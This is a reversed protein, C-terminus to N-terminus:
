PYLTVIANQFCAPEQLVNTAGEAFPLNGSGDPTGTWDLAKFYGTAGSDYFINTYITAAGGVSWADGTTPTTSVPFVLTDNAINTTGLTADGTLTLSPNLIGYSKFGNQTKWGTVARGFTQKLTIPKNFVFKRQNASNVVAIVHMHQFDIGRFLVDAFKKADREGISRYLLHPMHGKPTLDYAPGLCYIARQSRKGVIDLVSQDHYLGGSTLGEVTTGASSWAHQPIGFVTEVSQSTLKRAYTQVADYFAITNDVYNTGAPQSLVAGSVPQWAKVVPQMGLARAFDVHWAIQSLAEDLLSTGFQSTSLMFATKATDPTGKLSPFPIPPQSRTTTYDQPAAGQSANISGFWVDPCDPDNLLGRWMGFETGEGSNNPNYGQALSGNPDVGVLMPGIRDPVDRRFSAFVRGDLGDATAKNAELAHASNVPTVVGSWTGGILYPWASVNNDADGRSEISKVIMWYEKPIRLPPKGGYEALANHVAKFEDFAAFNEVACYSRVAHTLGLIPTVPNGSRAAGNLYATTFTTCNDTGIYTSGAFHGDILIWMTHRWFLIAVLHKGTLATTMANTRCSYSVAGGNYFAVELQGFRNGYLKLFQTAPNAGVLAFIPFATITTSYNGDTPNGGWSRRWFGRVISTDDQLADIAVPVDPSFATLPGGTVIAMDCQAASAGATVLAAHNAVSVVTQTTFDVDFLLASNQTNSLLGNAVNFGSEGFFGVRDGLYVPRSNSGSYLTADLVATLGASSSDVWTAMNSGSAFTKAGDACFLAKLSGSGKAETVHRLLTASAPATLDVPGLSSGIRIWGAPSAQYTFQGTNPIGTAGNADTHTGTDPGVAFGTSGAGGSPTIAALHAWTDTSTYGPAGTPGTAGTTGTDGTVIGFSLSQAPSTGVITATPAGGAAIKTVAGITLVNAPGPDGKAVAILATLKKWVWLSRVAARRNITNITDLNYAGQNEFQSDQLYDPNARLLVTSGATPPTTFTVTGGNGPAATLAVTYLASSITIGNLDVAVEAGSVATFTFPFGTQAGNGVYPGSSIDSSISVRTEM